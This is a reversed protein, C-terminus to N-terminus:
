GSNKVFNIASEFVVMDIVGKSEDNMRDYLYKNDAKAFSKFLPFLAMKDFTNVNMGLTEDFHDGFYVMKLPQTIAKVSEQDPQDYIAMKDIDRGSEYDELLLHVLKNVEENERNGM